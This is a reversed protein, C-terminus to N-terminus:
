KFLKRHVKFVIKKIPQSTGDTNFSTIHAENPLYIAFREPTLTLKLDDSAESYFLQYDAKEDYETKATLGEPRRCFNVESGVLLTQIDAYEKHIEWVSDKYDLTTKSDFVSIKLGDVGSDHSGNPTEPTANKVFNYIAEAAEPLLASYNLFNEWKDYLM